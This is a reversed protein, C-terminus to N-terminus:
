PMGVWETGGGGLHQHKWIPVEAKLTDILDRCAAFAADRHPASAAVVVAIEGIGLHGSRHVAALRAAQSRGAVEEAVEVLRAVATPHVSYDLSDVDQGRDHDRVVGVFLTVGGCSPDQVADLVEDVSLRQERIEALVVTGTRPGVGTVDHEM